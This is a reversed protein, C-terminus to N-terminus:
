GVELAPPACAANALLSIRRPVNPGKNLATAKTERVDPTRPSPANM